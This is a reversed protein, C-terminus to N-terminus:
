INGFILLRFITEFNDFILLRFVTEFNDFIFFGLSQKLTTLSLFRFVTEFNDFILFFGLSQKLTTLSWFGLSQKLTTLSWFGLSQKLTTLSLFFGLSQNSYQPLDFAEFSNFYQYLCFVLLWASKEVKLLLEITFVGTFVYDFYNLIKNSYSKEVVPDEAALALSSALIVIMIFPDFYRLNVVFHCFRRVRRPNPLITTIVPTRQVLTSYSATVLCGHHSYDLM